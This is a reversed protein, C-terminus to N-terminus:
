EGGSRNAPSAGGSATARASSARASIAASEEASRGRAVAIAGVIGVTLLAGILEFPVLDQIYLELSFGVVSGFSVCDSGPTVGCQILARAPDLGGVAAALAFTLTLMMAAAATKGLLGRSTATESVGPGIMMIVFVFLVVVAGAYILVQLAALLHAHLTLFLGSLAIVHTLLCMAARIPSKVVVTGVASLLAGFACFLFLAIGPVSM